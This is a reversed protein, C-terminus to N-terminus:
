NAVQLHTILLMAGLLTAAFICALVLVFRQTPTFDDNRATM